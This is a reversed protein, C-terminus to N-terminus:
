GIAVPHVFRITLPYRYAIGDRARIAAIITCILWVLALVPLLVFGILVFCLLGAVIGWLLMSINFNLAECGQDDVFPTSKKILWVVLPGIISGFGPALVLSGILSSLHCFMAWQRADDSPRGDHPIADSM